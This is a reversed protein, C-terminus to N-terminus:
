HRCKNEEAIKFLASKKKIPCMVHLYAIGVSVCMKKELEIQLKNEKIITIFIIQMNEALNEGRQKEIRKGKFQIKKEKNNKTTSM